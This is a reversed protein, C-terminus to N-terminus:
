SVVSRKKKALLKLLLTMLVFSPTSGQALLVIAQEFLEISKADLSYRPSRVAAKAISEVLAAVEQHSARKHAQVLEYVRELNLTDIDFDVGQEGSKQGELYVIPLRSRITPLLSAKSSTILIFYKKPPPEEIIKLLRNQAIESFHHSALILVEDVSSAVYAKEIVEKAQDILFKEEYVFLLVQMQKCQEQAREVALALDASILILSHCSM